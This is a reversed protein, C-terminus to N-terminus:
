WWKEGSTFHTGSGVCGSSLLHYLKDVAVQLLPNWGLENLTWPGSPKGMLTASTPETLLQRLLALDVDDPRTVVPLKLERLDDAPLEDMAKRWKRDGRLHAIGEPGAYRLLKSYLGGGFVLSAAKQYLEEDTEHQKKTRPESDGRGGGGDGGQEGDASRSVGSDKANGSM